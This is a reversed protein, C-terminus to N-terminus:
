HSNHQLSIRVKKGFFQQALFDTAEVSVNLLYLNCVFSSTWKRLDAAKKASRRLDPCIEASKILISPRATKPSVAIDYSEGPHSPLNTM